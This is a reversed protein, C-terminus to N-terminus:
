RVAARGQRAERERLVGAVAEVVVRFVPDPAQAVSTRAAGDWAVALLEGADIRLSLEQSFVRAARGTGSEDAALAEASAAVARVVLRDDADEAASCVEGFARLGIRWADSEGAVAHPTWARAAARLTEGPGAGIGDAVRAADAAARAGSRLSVLVADDAVETRDGAAAIAEYASRICGADLQRPGPADAARAIDARFADHDLADPDIGRALQEARRRADIPERSM